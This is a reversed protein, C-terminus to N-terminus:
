IGLLHVLSEKMGLPNSFDARTQWEFASGEVTLSSDSVPRIDFAEYLDSHNAFNKRFESDVNTKLIDKAFLKTFALGIPNTTLFSYLSLTFPLVSKSFFFDWIASIYMFKIHKGRAILGGSTDHIEMSCYGIYKGIKDIKTSLIVEQDAVSNSIIDTSLQISVGGRCTQDFLIMAYSSLEDFVALSGSVSFYSSGKM